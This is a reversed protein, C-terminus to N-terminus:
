KKHKAKAPKSYSMWSSVLCVVAGVSIILGEYTALLEAQDFPLNKSLPLYSDVLIVLSASVFLLPVIEILRKSKGVRGKLFFVTMVVPLVLLVVHVLRLDSFDTYDGVLKLTEDSLQKSIQDGVLVSFFVIAAPVRLYVLVIWILAVAGILM